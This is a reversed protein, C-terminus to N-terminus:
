QNANTMCDATQQSALSLQPTQPHVYRNTVQMSSHGLSQQVLFMNGTAKFQYTAFTRRLTHITFNGDLLGQSTMEAKIRNFCKRPRGIHFGIKRYSPFLYENDSLSLCKKVVAQAQNNLHIVQPKGSKTLPLRITLLDSSIMSRTISISNGIRIGTYLCLLLAHSAFLSDDANAIEIFRRIGGTNLIFDQINNEPLKKIGSCPNKDILELELAHALVKSTASLYRNYTAPSWEKNLKNLTNIITLRKIDTVKEDGIVSAVSITRQKFDSYSRNHTRSHPLAHDNLVNSFTLNCGSQLDGSYINAIYEYAQKKFETATMDGVRGITKSYREGSHNVCVRWSIQHKYCNFGLRSDKSLRYEVPKGGNLLTYKWATEITKKGFDTILAM